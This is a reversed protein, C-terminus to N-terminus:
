DGGDKGIYRLVDRIIALSNQLDEDCIAVDGGGLADFEGGVQFEAVVHLDRGFEEEFDLDDGGEDGAEDM